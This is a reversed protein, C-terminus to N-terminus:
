PNAAWYERNFRDFARQDPFQDFLFYWTKGTDQAQQRLTEFYDKVAASHPQEANEVYEVVTFYNGIGSIPKAQISFHAMQGNILKVDFPSLSPMDSPTTLAEASHRLEWDDYRMWDKELEEFDSKLFFKDKARDLFHIYHPEHHNEANLIRLRRITNDQINPLIAADIREKLGLSSDYLLEVVTRYDRLIRRLPMIGLVAEAGYSFGWFTGRKDLFYSPNYNRVGYHESQETIIKRVWHSTLSYSPVLGALGLLYHTDLPSFGGNSAWKNIVDSSIGLPKMDDDGMADILDNKEFQRLYKTDKFKGGELDEQNKGYRLRLDRLANGFREIEERHMLRTSRAM